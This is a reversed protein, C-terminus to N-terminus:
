GEASKLATRFDVPLYFGRYQSKNFIDELTVRIDDYVLSMIEATYAKPMPDDCEIKKTVSLVLRFRVEARFLLEPDDDTISSEPDFEHDADAMQVRVGVVYELKDGVNASCLEDEDKIMFGIRVAVTEAKESLQEIDVLCLSKEVLLLNDIFGTKM